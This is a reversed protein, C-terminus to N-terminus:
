KGECSLYHLPTYLRIRRLLATSKQEFFGEATFDIDAHTKNSSYFIIAFIFSNANTKCSRPFPKGLPIDYFPFLGPISHAQATQVSQTATTDTKSFAFDTNIPTKRVDNEIVCDKIVFLRASVATTVWSNDSITSISTHPKTTKTQSILIVTSLSSSYYQAPLLTLKRAMKLQKM